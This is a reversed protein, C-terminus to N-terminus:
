IESPVNLMSAMRNEAARELDNKFRVFVRDPEMQEFDMKIHIDGNLNLNRDGRKGTEAPATEKGLLGSYMKFIDVLKGGIGTSLEQRSFGLFKDEGLMSKIMGDFRELNAAGEATILGFKKFETAVEKGAAVQGKASYSIMAEISKPDLGSKALAPVNLKAGEFRAIAQSLDRSGQTDWRLRNVKDEEREMSDFFEKALLYTAGILTVTTATMTVAGLTAAPLAKGLMGAVGGAINAAGGVVGPVKSAGWILAIAKWHRLLTETLTVIKDFAAALKEGIEQVLPKGSAGAQMLKKSLEELKTSVRGFLPGTLKEFVFEGTMKIRKLNDDFGKSMEDAAPVLNKLAKNIMEYRKEPSAKQFAKVDVIQNRLYAQFQGFRPLVGMQVVRGVAGMDAGLVKQAATAGVTLEQIQDYSLGLNAVSTTITNFGAAVQPLPEAFRMSVERLKEMRDAGAEMSAAMQEAPNTGKAWNGTAYIIGAISERTQEAQAGIHVLHRAFSAGATAIKSYATTLFATKSALRDTNAAIRNLGSSVQDVLKFAVQTELVETAM